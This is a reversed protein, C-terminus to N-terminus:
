MLAPWDVAHAFFRLAGGGGAVWAGPHHRFGDAVTTDASNFSGAQAVDPGNELLAARSKLSPRLIAIHGARQPDPNEYAAVVLAGANAQTQAAQLDVMRWGQAAGQERLWRMQSNALLEQPHEPPRLLYVGLQAAMAAAYASCHTASQPGGPGPRDVQGTRWDVHWGARWLAEIRSNDIARLLRAGDPSIAGCCPPGGPEARHGAHRPACGALGFLALAARRTM